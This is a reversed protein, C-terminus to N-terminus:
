EEDEVIINTDSIMKSVNKFYEVVRQKNNKKYEDWADVAIFGHPTILVTGESNIGTFHNKDMRVKTEKAVVVSKGNLKFEKTKLAAELKGGFFLKVGMDYAFVMGGTEKPNISNSGGHLRLIGVFTISRKYKKYKSNTVYPEIFGGFYNKHVKANHMPLDLNDELIKQNAANCKLKNVSDVFFCVDYPFENKEDLVDQCVSIIYHYMEESSEFGDKFIFFGKNWIKVLEGTDEDLVEEYDCDIGMFKAHEFSFKGETSIIIPLIGMKQCEKIGELLITTKGTDAYGSISICNSIPFGQFGLEEALCKPFNIFALPKQPKPLNKASQKYTSLFDLVEGAQVTVNPEISKKIKAMDKNKKLFILPM